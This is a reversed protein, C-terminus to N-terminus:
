IRSARYESPPMGFYKKFQYSFYHAESYGCLEAIERLKLDTEELYRQANKLRVKTLYTVFTEGTEQSFITSFHNPSYGVYSAVTQLSIDADGFHMQIFKRAEEIESLYRYDSRRRADIYLLLLRKCFGKCATLDEVQSFLYEPRGVEPFHKRVDCGLGALLRGVTIFCDMTLYYRYLISQVEANDSTRFYRDVFTDVKNEELYALQNLALKEESLNGAFFKEQTIGMQEFFDQLDGSPEALFDNYTYIKSKHLDIHLNFAAKASQAGEKLSDMGAVTKGIGFPVQLQLYFDLEHLCTQLAGHMQEQGSNMEQTGILFFLQFGNRMFVFLGPYDELHHELMARIQRRQVRSFHQLDTYAVVFYSLDHLPLDLEKSRQEAEKKSLENNIMQNLFYERLINKEKGGPDPTRLQLLMEREQRIDEAAKDLAECLMPGTIPKLLYESIGISIASQAYSFEDHGSLIIIRMWPMLQRVRRSLELGDMFPMRVDTILVDPKLEKLEALAVEGDAAEGVLSYRDDQREMVYRIGDRIIDEDDVVYVNLM